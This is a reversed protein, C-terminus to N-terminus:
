RRVSLRGHREVCEYNDLDGKLVSVDWWFGRNKVGSTPGNIASQDAAGRDVEARLNRPARGVFRWLDTKRGQVGCVHGWLVLAIGREFLGM